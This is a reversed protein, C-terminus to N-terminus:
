WKGTKREPAPPLGKLSKLSKRMDDEPLPYDMLRGSMYNDYGVLIM